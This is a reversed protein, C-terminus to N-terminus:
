WFFQCLLVSLPHLFLWCLYLMRGVNVSDVRGLHCFSYLFGMFNYASGVFSACACGRLGVGSWVHV